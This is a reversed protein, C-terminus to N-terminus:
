PLDASPSFGAAGLQAELARIERELTETGELAFRATAARLLLAPDSSARALRSLLSTARAREGIARAEAFTAAAERHMGRAALAMGLPPLCVLLAVIDGAGRAAAVLENGWTTSEEIRGNWNCRSGRGFPNSRHALV